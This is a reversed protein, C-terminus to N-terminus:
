PGGGTRGSARSPSPHPSNIFTREDQAQRLLASPVGPSRVPCLLLTILCPSTSVVVLGDGEGM